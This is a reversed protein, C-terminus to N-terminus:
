FCCVVICLVIKKKKQIWGLVLFFLNCRLSMSMFILTYVNNDPLYCVSALVFMKVKCYYHYQCVIVTLSDNICVNNDNDGILEYLIM